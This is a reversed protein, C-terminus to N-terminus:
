QFPCAETLVSSRARTSHVQHAPRGAKIAFTFLRAWSQRPLTFANTVDFVWNKQAPYGRCLHDIRHNERCFAMAVRRSRQTVEM